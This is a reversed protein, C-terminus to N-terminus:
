KEGRQVFRPEQERAAVFSRWLDEAYRWAESPSIPLPQGGRRSAVMLQLAADRLFYPREGLVHIAGETKV